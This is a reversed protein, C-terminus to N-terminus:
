GVSHFQKKLINKLHYSKLINKIKRSTGNREYINHTKRLVKKFAPTYLRDLAKRISEKTPVCDIVSLNKIRGKQRDGINVTGIRFSPAEVIGSSSNGVVGDVFQLASLYNIRGMSTLAVARLCNKQVYRDIMKIIIRGNTDANPKTFIVKTDKREDLASLLNKFQDQATRDELTCPHFTVLVNRKGLKFGIAKQFNNKNLLPTQRINDLGPAGVNFVHKPDEGLQIVKKRHEKTITFHLHAMKTISHRMAEDIAGESSDGGGIHAVPIRAVMAASVASFIEFRDGLVVIIDPKLESFARAFGAVARGMSESIGVPTDSSSLIAIKKNIRFGDKEIEQYTLGFEKSLHMGTVVLQLKLQKDRTIEKLLPFLLGYDARAGTIVAIKRIGM